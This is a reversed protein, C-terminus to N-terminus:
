DVPGEVSALGARASHSCIRPSSRRRYSSSPGSIMFVGDGRYHVTQPYRPSTAVHAHVVEFVFLSYQKILRTDILKCEFNAYCEAILPLRCERAPGATLGFKTSAASTRDGGGHCNGIGIM